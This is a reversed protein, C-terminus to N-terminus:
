FVDFVKKKRYVVRRVRSFPPLLMQIVKSSDARLQIICTPHHLRQFCLYQINFKKKGPVRGTTRSCPFDEGMAGFCYM